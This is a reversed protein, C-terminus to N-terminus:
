NRGLARGEWPGGCALHRTASEGDGDLRCNRASIRGTHGSHKVVEALWIVASLFQPLAMHTVVNTVPIECAEAFCETLLAHDIPSRAGGYVGADRAFASFEVFEVLHQDAMGVSAGYFKFLEVVAPLTQRPM